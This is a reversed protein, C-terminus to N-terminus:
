LDFVSSTQDPRDEGEFSELNSAIDVVAEGSEMVKRIGM